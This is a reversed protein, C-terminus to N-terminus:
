SRFSRVGLSERLREFLVRALPKTFIDAINEKSDVRKIQVIGNEIAERIFHYKVDIHKTRQHFEDNQAIKICSNNDEMMTIPERIKLKIEKCLKRFYFLEQTLKCLAMYEAETTSLAVTPQIKSTWAIPSNWLNVLIGAISRRDDISNAFDADSLGKFKLEKVKMKNQNKGGLVLGYNKTEKLYRLANKAAKWHKPGPNTIYKSLEHTVYALDPRTGVALYMLSGVVARYPKDKMFLKEKDTKCGMEKSLKFGPDIPIKAGHCDSFKFKELVKEIYKKQSIEITRENRNRKIKWGLIHHIEGLDKMEFKSQLMKKIKAMQPKTPTLITMDDVYIAIIEIGNTVHRVFVCNDSQLQEFGETKLSKTLLKNWIRPAQKLGYLSKKLRCVLHEQNRKVYYEPQEMFILKDIEGNLFATKVDMQHIEYNEVAGYTLLFRLTEFRLVPSFIEDYDIGFTEEFGKIVLRAKFREVNGNEDYKVVFVWRCKLVKQDKPREELTWTDNKMLSEYENDTADIWYAAYKSNIAEKITKPIQIKDNEDKVRNNLLCYTLMVHDEIIEKKRENEKQCWEQLKRLTLEKRSNALLETQRRIKQILLNGKENREDEKELRNDIKNMEKKRENENESEDTYNVPVSKDLQLSDEEKSLDETQDITGGKSSEETREQSSNPQDPGKREKNSSIEPSNESPFQEVHKFLSDMHVENSVSPIEQYSVTVNQPIQKPITAYMNEFFLANRTLVPKMTEIELLRYGKGDKLYGVFICKVARKSLKTRIEVDIYAWAVCGFTRLDLIPPSHGNKMHYPSKRDRNRKAPSINIIDNATIIAEAWLTLPFNGAHLMTRQKDNLTRIRREALGNQQHQRAQTYQLKIGYKICLNKVDIDIFEGAHDLQLTRLEYRGGEIIEQYWQELKMKFESREKLLIVFGFSTFDDILAVYYRYGNYSPCEVYYVDGCIKELYKQTHKDVTRFPLKTMKGKICDECYFNDILKSSLNLQYEHNLKQMATKGPHGLRQHWKKLRNEQSEYTVLGVNLPSCVEFYYLQCTPLKRAVVKLNGKFKLIAYNAHSFVFSIQREKTAQPISLLNFKLKPIYYVKKLNLTILKNNASVSLSIDGIGEIQLSRDDAVYINGSYLELNVFYKKEFTMHRTAGSDLIWTTNKCKTTEKVCYLAVSRNMLRLMDNKHTSIIDIQQDKDYALQV